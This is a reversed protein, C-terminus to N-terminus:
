YIFRESEKLSLERKKFKNDIFKIKLNQSKNEWSSEEVVKESIQHLLLLNHDTQIWDSQDSWRPWDSHSGTLTRSCELLNKLAEHFSLVEQKEIKPSWTM